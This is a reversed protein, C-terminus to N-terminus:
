IKNLFKQTDEYDKLVIKNIDVKDLIAKIEPLKKTKFNRVFDLFDGDMITHDFGPAMDTRKEENMRAIVNKICIETEIDLLIVTDCFQTRWELTGGYNGDIIFSDHANTFATVMEKLEDRSIQKFNDIHYIYDLHLLPIELKKALQKSFTSKGSGPCGIIMIKEMFDGVVM